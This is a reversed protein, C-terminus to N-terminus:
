EKKGAVLKDEKDQMELLEPITVFSYGRARLRSIIKPLAEVTRPRKGGGDHMLAIGGHTAGKVIRNTLIEAPPQKYDISDVSWMLTVYNKKRAYAAVGNNMIGGPPRFLNTKVGTTKYILNTTSDIESAAVQPSMRRYRHNWTHNAITHGDEVIRKAIKPYLQLNSGVVFFTAKANNKKLIDLIQETYNPVPGDDFTLAIVKKASKALKAEKITAGAFQPPITPLLGKSKAEEKWTAIIIKKLDIIRQSVGTEATMLKSNEIEQSSTQSANTKSIAILSLNLSGTLMAIVIFTRQAVVFLKRSKM